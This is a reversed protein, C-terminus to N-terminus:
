TVPTSLSRSLTTEEALPQRPRVVGAGLQQRSAARRAARLTAHDIGKLLLRLEHAHITVREAGPPIALPIRYTGRDLRTYLLRYGAGDFWLLKLHTRRRNHFVVLTDARPEAGLKDRVIGALRDFSLHLDVPVTAVLITSPLRIM